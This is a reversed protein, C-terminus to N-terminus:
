CKLTNNQSCHGASCHATCFFAPPFRRRAPVYASERRCKKIPRLGRALHLPASDLKVASDIGGAGRKEMRHSALMGREGHSAFRAYGKEGHSAFRAYGKEEWVICVSGVGGGVFFGKCGELFEAISSGDGPFIWERWSRFGDVIMVAIWWCEM